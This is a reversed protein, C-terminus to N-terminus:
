EGMLKRWTSVFLYVGGCPLQWKGAAADPRHTVYNTYRHQAHTAHTLPAFAVPAWVNETGTSPVVYIHNMERFAQTSRGDPGYKNKVPVPFFAIPEDFRQRLVRAGADVQAAFTRALKPRVGMANKMERSDAALAKKRTVLSQEKQLTVLIVKPNVGHKDAAAKIIEAASRGDESYSALFSARAELFAQIQERTMADNRVFAEDTYGEVGENKSLDRFDFKENYVFTALVLPADGEGEAAVEAKVTATSTKTDATYVARALGQDDTLKPGTEVAGNDTSFRVALGARKKLDRFVVETTEVGDAVLLNPKGGDVDVFLEATHGRTVVDGIWPRPPQGFFYSVRGGAATEWEKFKALNAAGLLKGVEAETAKAIPRVQDMVRPDALDPGGADDLARCIRELHGRLLEELKERNDGDPKTRECFRELEEALVPWLRGAALRARYGRYDEGDLLYDGRTTWRGADDDISRRWADFASWGEPPAIKRVAELLAPLGPRVLDNVKPPASDRGDELDTLASEVPAFLRDFAPRLENWKAVDLKLVARAEDLLREYEARHGAAMEMRRYESLVTGPPAPQPPRPHPPPQTGSAVPPKTGAPPRTGAPPLGPQASPTSAAPSPASAVTPLPQAELEALREELEAVAKWLRAMDAQSLPTPGPTAVPPPTSAPPPPSTQARLREALWYGGAGSLAGGLVALLFLGKSVPAPGAGARPRGEGHRHEHRDSKRKSGSM